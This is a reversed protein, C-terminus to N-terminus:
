PFIQVILFNIINDKIRLSINNDKLPLKSLNEDNKSNKQSEVHINQQYIASNNDHLIPQRDKSVFITTNNDRTVKVLTTKLPMSTPASVSCKPFGRTRALAEEILNKNPRPPVPPPALCREFHSTKEGDGNPVVAACGGTWSM